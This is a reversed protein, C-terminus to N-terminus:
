QQIDKDANLLGLDILVSRAAQQEADKKTRGWASPFHVGDIHVAVEFCKNHDPGKEDLLQYSPPSGWRRQAVQQLMSKYNEQHGSEMAEDLFSKMSSLIFKKAPELGGDVYIAGVIAEYVAAMISLPLAGGSLMGSGFSMWEALGLQETVRACTQRSVVSSKIKTMDGELLNDAHEYLEHCIVLGLVADGLFELRENSQERSSSVSAHTLATELISLDSFTYGLIRQCKELIAKDM